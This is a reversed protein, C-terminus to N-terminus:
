SDNLSVKQHCFHMSVGHLEQYHQNKRCCEAAVHVKTICVYLMVYCLYIYIWM